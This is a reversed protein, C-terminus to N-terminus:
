FIIFEVSKSGSGSFVIRCWTTGVVWYTAAVPNQKLNRDTKKVGKTLETM